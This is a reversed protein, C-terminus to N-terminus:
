QKDRTWKNGRIWRLILADVSVLDLVNGYRYVEQGNKLTIKVTLTFGGRPSAVLYMGRLTGVTQISDLAGTYSPPPAEPVGVPACVTTGRASRRRQGPGFAEKELQEGLKRAEEWYLGNKGYPLTEIGRHFLEQYVENRIYQSCRELSWSRKM